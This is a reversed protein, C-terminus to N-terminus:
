PKSPTMAPPPPPPPAGSPQGNGIKPWGNEWTLKDALVMRQDGVRGAPWAHYVFYEENNVHAPGGHGPGVWNASSQLIPEPAKEWPGLPSTSRAVGVAYKDTNYMNGSYFLYYYGDRRMVSPAEVNIGEWDRDNTIIQTPKGVLGLGNRTLQQVYFPTPKGIDNGDLKWVLYQKGDAGRFHTADIVGTRPDQVLPRGIDKYPGNAHDSIAAGISLKGSNDRATYYVVWKNDVRHIEPAWFDNKAWKPAQGPEFVKGVEHFGELKNGTARQIPFVGNERSGGTAVMYVAKGGVNRVSPDPFDKAFIPNQPPAQTKTPQTKVAAVNAMAM